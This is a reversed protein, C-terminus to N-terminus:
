RTEHLKEQIALLDIWTERKQAPQRLLYAPHLIARAPILTNLPEIRYDLWKGRLRMIGESRNLLAKASTGGLMVIIRPAILEIHRQVFPLCAAIETDSPSRNGPPRWPLINTIYVSNRSLGISALMKELLLGAPGVFPEGQRDEEAGPAEGILMIQAEPDGAGFVLTKATQKLPCGDFAELRERLDGLNLAGKASNSATELSNERSVLKRPKLPPSESQFPRQNTETNKEQRTPVVSQSLRCVPLENLFVDVGSDIYWKLLESMPNDKSM